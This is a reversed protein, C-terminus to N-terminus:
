NQNLNLDVHCYYALGQDDFGVEIDDFKKLLNKLKGGGADTPEGILLIVEELDNSLIDKKWLNFQLFDIFEM